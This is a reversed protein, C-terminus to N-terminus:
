LTPEWLNVEKKTLNVFGRYHGQNDVLGLISGKLPLTIAMDDPVPALLEKLKKVTIAPQDQPWRKGTIGIEGPKDFPGYIDDPGETKMKQEEKVTRIFTKMFDALAQAPTIGLRRCAARFNKADQRNILPHRLLECIVIPDLNLIICLGRFHWISIHHKGRELAGYYSGQIGLARGVETITLGKGQRIDRLLKLDLVQDPSFPVPYSM